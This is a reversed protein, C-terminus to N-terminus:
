ADNSSAAAAIRAVRRSSREYEGALGVVGGWLEALALDVAMGRRGFVGRVLMMMQYAGFWWLIMRRLARRDVNPLRADWKALFAMSGLGWTYYQRRLEEYERRHEHFVLIAPAYVLPRGAHLVHFFM